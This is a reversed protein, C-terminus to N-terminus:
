AIGLLILKWEEGLCAVNLNKNCAIPFLLSVEKVPEYEGLERTEELRTHAILPGPCM